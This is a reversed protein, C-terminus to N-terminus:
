IEPDPVYTKYKETIWMKTKQGTYLVIKSKYYM